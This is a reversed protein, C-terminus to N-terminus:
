ELTSPSEETPAETVPEAAAATATSPTAVPEAGAHQTARPRLTEAIEADRAAAEALAEAIETATRPSRSRDRSRERSRYRPQGQPVSGMAKPAHQQTAGAAGPLTPPLIQTEQLYPDGGPFLPIDSSNPVQTGGSNPVQTGGPPAPPFASAAGATGSREYGGAVLWAARAAVGSAHAAEMRARQYTQWYPGDPAPNGAAAM